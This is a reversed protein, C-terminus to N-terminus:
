PHITWYAAQGGNGAAISIGDRSSAQAMAAPIASVITIDFILAQDPPVLGGGGGKAGFALIPPLAVEWHDGERMASLAEGLGRLTTGADVAGPLGPSTGDVVTGDVLKATFYM